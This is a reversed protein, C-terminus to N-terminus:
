IKLSRPYIKKKLRCVGEKDVPVTLYDAEYIPWFTASQNKSPKPRSTTKKTTNSKFSAVANRKTSVPRFPNPSKTPTCSSGAKSTEHPAAAPRFSRDSPVCSDKRTRMPIAVLSVEPIDLGERLLNVGVLVDFEGLRLDRIISVRELTHIDSHLYRVRSATRQLLRDSEGGHAQDAHHGTGKGRKQRPYPNRRRDDVQHVAPKIEIEPDMLGTPRIIQEVRVGRTKTM